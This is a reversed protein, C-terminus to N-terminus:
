AYVNVLIRGASPCSQLMMRAGRPLHATKLDDIYPSGQYRRDLIKRQRQQVIASQIRIGIEHHGAPDKWFPHMLAPHLVPFAIRELMAGLMSPIVPTRQCGLLDDYELTMVAGALTQGQGFPIGAGLVLRGRVATEHIYRAQTGMGREKIRSSRGLAM